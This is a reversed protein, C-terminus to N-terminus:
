EELDRIQKRFLTAAATVALCLGAATIMVAAGKGVGQGTINGIADAAMGSVAYAIVYGLQSIFGVLGWVRGQVEDPINIRVLYDLCNNAFPLAAFFLFGFGCVPVMNEFLSFGAMFLGAATLSIGLVRAYRKKLGRIGLIIGSALMGCACVTEAIGLTKEDM